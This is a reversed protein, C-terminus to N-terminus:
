LYAFRFVEELDRDQEVEGLCKVDKHFSNNRSMREEKTEIVCSERREGEVGKVMEELHGRYMEEIFLKGLKIRM